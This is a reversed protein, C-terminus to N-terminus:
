EMDKGGAQLKINSSANDASISLVLNALRHSGANNAVGLRRSIFRGIACCLPIWVSRKRKDGSAHFSTNIRIIYCQSLLKVYM